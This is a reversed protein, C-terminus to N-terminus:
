AARRHRRLPVARHVRLALVRPDALRDVVDGGGRGDVLRPHRAGGGDRRRRRGGDRQHQCVGAPPKRAPNRPRRVAPRWGVRRAHLVGAPRVGQRADRRRPNRRHVRRRPRLRGDPRGSDPDVARREGDGPRLGGRDVLRRHEDRRLRCRRGRRRAATLRARNSVDFRTAPERALCRTAPAPTVRRGDARSTSRGAM